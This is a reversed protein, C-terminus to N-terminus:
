DSGKLIHEEICDIAIKLAEKQEGMNGMAYNLYCDDCNSTYIPCEGSTSCELCKLKANLRSLVIHEDTIKM